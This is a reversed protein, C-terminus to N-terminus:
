DAGFLEWTRWRYGVPTNASDLWAWVLMNRVANAYEIAHDVLPAAYSAFAEQASHAGAAPDSDAPRKDVKLSDRTM